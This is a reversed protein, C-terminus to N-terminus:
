RVGGPGTRLLAAGLPTLTHLVTNAHRHSTILGADRLVNTHHSATTPTV